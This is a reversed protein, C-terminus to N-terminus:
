PWRQGVWQITQFTDSIAREGGLRAIVPTLVRLDNLLDRRSRRSLFPLTEQWLPYLASTSLRTLHPALAALVRPRDGPDDIERAVSLTTHLIRAQEAAPLHPTLGALAEAQDGPDDIERATKIAELIVKKQEQEPLLPIFQTLSWVRYRENRIAQASALVRGLHVKPLYPALEILARVQSDQDEIGRTAQLADKLVSERESVAGAGRSGPPAPLHALLRTLAEARTWKEQISRAAAVAEQLVQAQKEPPLHRALGALAEARSGENWIKRAADLADKLLPPTLHPALASLAEAQLYEDDITKAVKLAEEPHGHAALRPTLRILAAARSGRGQVEQAADIGEQLMSDPLYPALGALAWGREDGDEIEQAVKRGDRLAQEREWATLFPALEALAEARWTKHKIEQASHFADSLLRERETPSLCPILKTLAWARGDNDGIAQAIELGRRLLPGSLLPVLGALAEARLYGDEIAETTGIARRLAQKQEVDPLLPTLGILIRVRDGKHEIAWSAALAKELAQQQAAASLHPILQILVEAQIISDAIQNIAALTAQSYKERQPPSLRPLLGALVRGRDGQEEIALAATLADQLLHEPLYPALHQLAEARAPTYQIDMVMALVEAFLEESLHPILGHLAEVRPSGVLGSLPLENVAELAEKLVLERENEPLLPTLGGLMEARKRADPNKRAAALAQAPTWLDNKVLAHLLNLPFNGALNRLSASVLACRIERGLMPAQEDRATTHSNVAEAVAFAEDLDHLYTSQSADWRLQAEFWTRQDVFMLITELDGSHRLHATLHRHAYGGHAPWRTTANLYHHAVRDHVAVLDTKIRLFDAFSAHAIHWAPEGDRQDQRLLPLWPTLLREQIDQTDHGSQISLWDATVPERAVGLLAIIQRYPERWEDWETDDDSNKGRVREWYFDYYEILGVPLEGTDSLDVTQRAIDDFIRALYLFNNRSNNQLASILDTPSVAHTSASLAELIKPQELQLRLFTQIDQQHHPDNWAITLEEVPTSPHARLPFNGPQHSLIVYVGEPLRAPLDLWNFGLPTPAAEDLADIVLLIPADNTRNQSARELAKTLFPAGIGTRHPIFEYPLGFRAILHVALHTLGLEPNTFGMRADFFYVVARYRQAVAAAIATKGMGADAVVRLYGRDNQAIWNEIHEFIFERGVLDHTKEQTYPALDRAYQVLAPYREAILRYDSNHRSELM